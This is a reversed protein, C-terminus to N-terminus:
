RVPYLGMKQLAEVMLRRMGEPRSVAPCEEAIFQDLAALQDPPVRVTIPTANVAPRGIKKRVNSVSSSM